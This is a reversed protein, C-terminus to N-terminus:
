SVAVSGKEVGKCMSGGYLGGHRIPGNKFPQDGTFGVMGQLARNLREDLVDFGFVM